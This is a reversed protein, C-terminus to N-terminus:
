REDRAHVQAPPSTAEVASFAELIEYQHPADAPVMWSGGQESEIEVAHGLPQIAEFGLWLWRCITHRLGTAAGLSLHLPSFVTRPCRFRSSLGDFRGKEGPGGRLLTRQVM